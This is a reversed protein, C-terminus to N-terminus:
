QMYKKIQFKINAITSQDLHPSGIHYITCIIQSMRPQMAISREHWNMKSYIPDQDEQGGEQGKHTVGQKDERHLFIEKNVGVTWTSVMKFAFESEYSGGESSQSSDNNLRENLRLNALQDIHLCLFSHLFPKQPWINLTSSFVFQTWLLTLLPMYQILVLILVCIISLFFTLSFIKFCLHELTEHIVWTIFNFNSGLKKLVSWHRSDM